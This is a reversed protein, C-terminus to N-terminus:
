IAPGRRELLLWDASQPAAPAVREWDHRQLNALTQRVYPNALLSPDAYILDIHNQDLWANENTGSPGYFGVPAGECDDEPIVYNCVEYSRLSLLTTRHGRLHERYPELNSVITATVKGTGYIPNSYGRHYHAPVFVILLLAAIPVAPLLRKLRPWRDAVVMACMGIVPYLVFNLSFLYAPRPHTTIAVWTGLVAACLLVAWGWARASLWSQWWWSRRLWLLRLALVVLALVAVSGVLALWSGTPIDVYDPNHFESGSSRNFLAMELAYPFLTANWEFHSAMASPNSALAEYFSPMQSGFDRQMFTECHLWGPQTDAHHQQQYGVAYHQCLALDQKTQASEAWQPVSQPDRARWITLLALVAVALTAVGFPTLTRSLPVSTGGSSRRRRCERWEYAICLLLWVLAAVIIENRVVVASGLLIGFVTARMRPGSSRLAVLVAVLIPLLAFLHVENLTDYNTPLIAWWAALAWAIGPTLLRRLVALVLITVAFVIIIRHALTVAYADSIFWRLTGWFITYLPSFLPEVQLHDTWSNAYVFYDSTDGASFDRFQWIGWLVKAQILLISGYAFWASVAIREFRALVSHARPRAGAIAVSEM